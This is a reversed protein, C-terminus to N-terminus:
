FWNPSKSTEWATPNREPSKSLITTWPLRLNRTSTFKCLTQASEELGFRKQKKSTIETFHMAADSGSAAKAEAISMRLGNATQDGTQQRTAKGVAALCTIMGAFLVAKTLRLM